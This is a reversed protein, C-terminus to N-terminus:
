ASEAGYNRRRCYASEYNTITKEIIVERGKLDVYQQKIYNLGVGTSQVKSKHPVLNNRVEIDLGDTRCTWGMAKAKSVNLLKRPTGNPRSIDWTIRGSYGVVKAVLETLQKITLEKGTGANM